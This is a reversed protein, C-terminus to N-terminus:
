AHCITFGLVLYSVKRLGAQEARSRSFCIYFAYMFLEPFRILDLATGIFSATIVYNVFFAGNGSLFVCRVPFTMILESSLM